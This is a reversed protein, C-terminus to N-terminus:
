NKIEQHIYDENRVIMGLHRFEAVNEFLKNAIKINHDKGANQHHSM